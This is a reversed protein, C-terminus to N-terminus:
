GFLGKWVKKAGDAVAGGVDKARDGVWGAAKKAGDAIAERNEYVWCGVAVVGAVAVIAAGVPTVMAGFAMATMLVGGTATAVGGLGRAVRDDTAMSSDTVATYMDYGGAVVGLPGLVKSAFPMAARVPRMASEFRGLKGVIQAASAEPAFASARQLAAAEGIFGRSQKYIWQAQRVDAPLSSGITKGLAREAAQYAKLSQPDLVNFPGNTIAQYAGRADMFEKEAKLALGPARVFKLTGYLSWAKTGAKVAHTVVNKALQTDPNRYADLLDDAALNVGSPSNTVAARQWAKMPTLSGANPVWTDIEGHLTSAVTRRAADLADHAREATRTEAVMDDHYADVLDTDGTARARRWLTEAHAHRSQAGRISDQATELAEAWDALAGRVTVLSLGVSGAAKAADSRAASFAAVRAAPLAGAAQGGLTTLRNGRTEGITTALTAVTSAASRLAGPDGTPVTFTSM